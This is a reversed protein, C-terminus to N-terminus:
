CKLIRILILVVKVLNNLTISNSQNRHLATTEFEIYNKGKKLLKSIIEAQFGFGDNIFTIEKLASSRFAVSGNYYRIKQFSILNVIKTFLTSILLRLKSKNIVSTYVPIILDYKYLYNLISEHTEIYDVDDGMVMRTYAGKLIKQYHNFIYGIGKPEPHNYINIAIHPNKDKFINIKELTKDSSGDNVVVIEFSHSSKNFSNAIKSLTSQIHDQENLCPVIISIDIKKLTSNKM